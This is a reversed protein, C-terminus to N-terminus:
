RAAPTRQPGHRTDRLNASTPTGTPMVHMATQSESFGADEDFGLFPNGHKAHKAASLYLNARRLNMRDGDRYKVAQGRGAGIILRAVTVINGTKACPARVYSFGPSANNFTWNGTLGNAILWIFDEEDLVACRENNALPVHVTRAGLASRKHIPPRKMKHM